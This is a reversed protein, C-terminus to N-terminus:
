IGSYSKYPQIVFVQQQWQGDILRDISDLKYGLRIRLCTISSWKYILYYEWATRNQALDYLEIYFSGSRTTDGVEPDGVQYSRKFDINNKDLKFGLVCYNFYNTPNRWALWCYKTWLSGQMVADYTSTDRGIYQDAGDFWALMNPLKLCTPNCLLYAGVVVSGILQLPISVFLFVLAQKIVQAIM